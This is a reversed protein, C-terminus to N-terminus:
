SDHSDWCRMGTSEGGIGYAQPEPEEFVLLTRTNLVGPISQIQDLVVRRLDTNDIARVLMIVDFEGGVLAIHVVGPLTRLQQRIEKWNAQRLNLTIYASTTLGYAVPDIEARYGRIVGAAHLRKLRAYANARSIHLSEALMRVSMRGDRTLAEVIQTDTDDLPEVM